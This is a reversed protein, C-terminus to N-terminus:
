GLIRKQIATKIELHVSEISQSADIVVCREGLRKSETLFGSRVDQMFSLGRSELRDPEGSLRAMAQEADLDLVITLDPVLGGTAIEGVQWITDTELGGASGQYVVNALLFRDVLVTEGRELAPLIIENVLQARSAMYILMEASMCLPIDKRHLLVERLAEGLKTGGPDRVSQVGGTETELWAQLMRLQTSKGCGDVGDISILTGDM